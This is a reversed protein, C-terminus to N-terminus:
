GSYAFVTFLNTLGLLDRIPKGVNVLELACGSSRTSVYLRILAGIGTSDIRTLKEMDLLIKKNQPIIESITDYFHRQTGAVLKGCCRVVAIYTTREIHLTLLGAATSDSM